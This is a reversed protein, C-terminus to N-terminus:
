TILAALTVSWGERSVVVIAYCLLLFVSELYQFDVERCFPLYLFALSLKCVMLRFSM